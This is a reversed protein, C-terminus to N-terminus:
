FSSALSRCSLNASFLRLYSSFETNTVLFFFPEIEGLVSFGVTFLDGEEILLWLPESLATLYPEVLILTSAGSGVRVSPSLSSM